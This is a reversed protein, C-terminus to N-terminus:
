LMEVSLPQGLHIQTLNPKTLKAEIRYVLKQRQSQSYIIPPTYESKNAIYSIEGALSTNSNDIHLLVKQGLHIQSLNTEPTYFIVKINSETILSLVPSASPIYEGKTYYTDFILGNQEAVIQKKSKQWINQATNIKASSIQAETALLENELVEVNQRLSDLSDQSFFGEKALKEQRQYTLKAYALKNKTANLTAQLNRTIEKSAAINNDENTQELQYLPNGIHVFQGRSADLKVLKGNFDSSIYVLDADIYGDAFNSDNSCGVLAM